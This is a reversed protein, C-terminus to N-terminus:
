TESLSYPLPPPAHGTMDECSRSNLTGIRKREANGREQIFNANGRARRGLIGPVRSRLVLFARGDRFNVINYGPKFVCVNGYLGHLHTSDTALDSQRIIRLSYTACNAAPIM